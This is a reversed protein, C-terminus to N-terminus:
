DRQAAFIIGGQRAPTTEHVFIRYDHALNITNGDFDRKSYIEIDYFGDDMVQMVEGLLYEIHTDEEGLIMVISGVDDHGVIPSGELPWINKHMFIVYPDRLNVRHGGPATGYTVRMRYFGDSYVDEVTAYFREMYDDDERRFIEHDNELVLELGIDQHNGFSYGHIDNYSVIRKQEGADGYIRTGYLNGILARNPPMEREVVGMYIGGEQLFYVDDGAYVRRRETSRYGSEVHVYTTFAQQRVVGGVVQQGVPDRHANIVERHAQGDDPQHRHNTQQPEHEPQTHWHNAPVNSTTVTRNQLAPQPVYVYEKVYEKKPEQSECGGFSCAIVIAAGIVTVKQLVKAGGQVIPLQSIKTTLPAQAEVVQVGCFMIVVIALLLRKLMVM